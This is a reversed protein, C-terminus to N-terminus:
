FLKAKGNKKIGKTCHDNIRNPISYYMSITNLLQTYMFVKLM